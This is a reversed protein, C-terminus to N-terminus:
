PSNAAAAVLQEQIWTLYGYVAHDLARPDDQGIADWDLDERVDLETGLVLRADNLARLWADAEDRSLSPRDLTSQLVDLARERGSALQGRTLQRYEREREPDEYASPFLRRLAPDSKDALRARTRAAVERLLAREHEPLRLLLEGRASRRIRREDRL